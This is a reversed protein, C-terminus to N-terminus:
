SDKRIVPFGNMNIRSIPVMKVNLVKQGSSKAEAKAEKRLM